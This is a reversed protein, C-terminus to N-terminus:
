LKIIAESSSIVSSVDGGSLCNYPRCYRFRIWTLYVPTSPTGGNNSPGIFTYTQNYTNTNAQLNYIPSGYNYYFVYPGNDASVGGSYAGTAVVTFVNNYQDDTVGTNDTYQSNAYSAYITNPNSSHGESFGNTQGTGSLTTTYTYGIFQGINSTSDNLMGNIDLFGQNSGTVEGFGGRSVNYIAGYFGTSSGAGLEMGNGSSSLSHQNGVFGSQGNFLTTTGIITHWNTPLSSIDCFNQYAYFVNAGDDETPGFWCPNQGTNASNLLNNSRSAFGLYVTTTGRPYSGDLYLWYLSNYYAYNPYTELWSNIINGNSDLFQVNTLNQQEYNIYNNSNIDLLPNQPGSSALNALHLPVVYQIGNTNYYKPPSFSFVASSTGAVVYQASANVIIGSANQASTYAPFDGAITCATCTISTGGIGGGGRPSYVDYTVGWPFISSNGVWEAAGSESFATTCTWDGNTITDNTGAVFSPGSNDDTCSYASMSYHTQYDGPVKGLEITAGVNATGTNSPYGISWTGSSYDSTSPGFAFYNHCYWNPTVTSGAVATSANIGCNYSGMFGSYPYTGPGTNITIPGGVSNSGTPDFTVAWSGNSYDSTSPSFLFTTTCYWVPTTSAGAQQTGSATCKLTEIGGSYSYIQPGNQTFTINSATSATENVGNYYIWWTYGSPLGTDYFTTTCPWVPHVVSGAKVNSGSSTCKLTEIAGSYGATAPATSFTINSSTSQSSNTSDYDIWWAYGPPLNNTGGVFITACVTSHTINVSLSNGAVVTGSSPTPVYSTTCGSSSNSQPSPISFSHTGPGSIIGITASSTPGGSLGDYTLQWGSSPLLGSETFTTYCLTSDSFGVGLTSGTPLTGSAPSPVYTSNCRSSSNELTNIAYSDYGPTAKFSITNTASQNLTGNYVVKWQYGKPLGSEIFYTPLPTPIPVNSLPTSIAGTTSLNQPFPSTQPAYILTIHAIYGQPYTGNVYCFSTQGAPVISPVCYYKTYNVNSNSLIMYVAEIKISSSQPNSVTFELVSSNAAAATVPTASFGTIITQPLTSRPSFLGLYFLVILVLVIVVIIWVYTSLFETAVQFRKSDHWDRRGKKRRM